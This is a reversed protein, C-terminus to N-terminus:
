YYEEILFTEDFNGVFVLNNKNYLEAWCGKYTNLEEEIEEAKNFVKETITLDDDDVFDAANFIKLVMYGEEMRRDCM